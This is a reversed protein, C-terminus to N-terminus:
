LKKLKEVIIKYENEIKKETEEILRKERIEDHNEYIEKFEDLTKIGFELFQKTKEQNYDVKIENNEFELIKCDILNALSM